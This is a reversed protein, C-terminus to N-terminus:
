KEVNKEMFGIYQRAINEWAYFEVASRNYAVQSRILEDNDWISYILEALAQENTAEFLNARLRAAMEVNPPTNSAIVPCGSAAAELFPLSSSEYLTATILFRARKYLAVIAMFSVPGLYQVTSLRNERIFDFLRGSGGFRQGTMVLPVDLGQEDRLRRLARLVTIHNKHRWLQAPFFLFKGPLNYGKLASADQSKVFEEIAVGEPIIVVKEESLGPFHAVFDNKMHTSSAQLYYAHKASLEYQVRRRMLAWRSFFEPYHVQQIDHMSLIVQKKHTYSSLIVTPVYLIDSREDMITAAASHVRDALWRHLLKSGSYSSLTVLFQKFLSARPGGLVIVREVCHAAYFEKFYWENYGTVYLQFRHETATGILGRLLGLTFTNLGGRYKPNVRTLDIGINM